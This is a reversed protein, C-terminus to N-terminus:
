FGKQIHVTFIHYKEETVNHLPTKKKTVFEKLKIVRRWQQCVCLVIRIRYLTEVAHYPVIRNTVTWKQPTKWQTCYM